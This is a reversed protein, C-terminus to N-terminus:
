EISDSPQGDLLVRVYMGVNRQRILRKRDNGSLVPLVREPWVEEQVLEREDEFEEVERVAAATAYQRHPCLVSPLSCVAAPRQHGQSSAVNAPKPSHLIPRRRLVM